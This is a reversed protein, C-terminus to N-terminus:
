QDAGQSGNGSGCIHCDPDPPQSPHCRSCFSPERGSHVLADLRAAIADRGIDHRIAWAAETMATRLREIENAAEAVTAVDANTAICEDAAIARLRETIATSM